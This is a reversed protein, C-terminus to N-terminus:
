DPGTLLIDDQLRTSLGLAVAEQVLHRPDITDFFKTFDWLVEGNTLGNYRDVEAEM